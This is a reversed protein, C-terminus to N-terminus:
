VETPEAEDATAARAPGSHPVAGFIDLLRTEFADESFSSLYRARAARRDALLGERDAAIAAIRAAMRQVREQPPLTREIVNTAFRPGVMEPIGGQTLVIPVLGHALGEILALPAHDHESPYLFVDLRSLFEAKGDEDPNYRTETVDALGAARLRAELAEADLEVTPSGGIALRIDHGAARAAAAADIAALVGKRPDFRGFWGVRLPGEPAIGPEGPDLAHNYLLHVDRFLGSARGIRATEGTIAVLETGAFARRLFADKRSTGDIMADLGECHVHVLVRDAVGKALMAVLADRVATHAWPTFSLYATDARRGVLRRALLRAVLGGFGLLKAPTKRGIDAIARASGGWLHEVAVRGDAVLMRRIADAVLTAGHRPPPLQVLFLSTARRGVRSSRRHEPTSM